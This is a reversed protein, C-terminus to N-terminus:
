NIKWYFDTCINSLILTQNLYIRSYKQITKKWYIKMILYDVMCNKPLLRLSFEKQFYILNEIEFNFEKLFLIEWTLFLNGRKQISGEGIQNQVFNIKFTFAKVHLFISWLYLHIFIRNKQTNMRIEFIFNNILYKFCRM